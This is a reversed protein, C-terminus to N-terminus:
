VVIGRQSRPKVGSNKFVLNAYDYELEDCFQYYLSEARNSSYLMLKQYYEQSIHHRSLWLNFAKFSEKAEDETKDIWNKKLEKTPLAEFHQLERWSLADMDPPCKPMQLLERFYRPVRVTHGNYLMYGRNKIEQANDLAFQKGLGLSQLAFPAERGLMTYFEDALDGYLKKQCYGAVYQIDERTVFDIANHKPKWRWMFDACKDWCSTFIKRDLNTKEPSPNMGFIIGHYHPRPIGDKANEADGYEGCVYYRLKRGDLEKFKHQLNDLCNSIEKKCLSFNDPLHEDDYTWTVFSSYEHYPYECCLRITWDTTTSIQCPLCKGCPRKVGNVIVPTKCLM